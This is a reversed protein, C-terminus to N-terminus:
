KAHRRYTWCDAVLILRRLEAVVTPFKEKVDAMSTCKCYRWLLQLRSHNGRFLLSFYQRVTTIPSIVPNALDAVPPIRRPHRDLSSMMLLWNLLYRLPELVLALCLLTTQDCRSNVFKGSEVLRVGMVKHWNVDQQFALEYAAGGVYRTEGVSVVKLAYENFSKAFLAQLIGHCLNCALIWDM